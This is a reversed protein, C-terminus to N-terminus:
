SNDTIMVRAVGWSAGCTASAIARIKEGWGSM